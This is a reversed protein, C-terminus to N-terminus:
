LEGPFRFAGAIRSRWWPTLPVEAVPAAEWAHLFADFGTLIGCHKAIRGPRMRFVLVDGPGSAERAIPEFHISAANLLTEEATVDGWDGSYAPLRVPEPGVLGRWVGRVLGLCDCGTGKLSARHHYPTGIWGRAAAVIESSSPAAM